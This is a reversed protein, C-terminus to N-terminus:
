TKIQFIFRQGVVPKKINFERIATENLIFNHEDAKNNVDFWRGETMELRFVRQYDEDASLQFVTPTFNHERGDWDASGSNSSTLNVISSSAMTVGAIATHSKLEQKISTFVANNTEASYSSFYRYPLSFAFLQERDYGLNKEQTYKLQRFITITTIILIASFTFQSVVLIKRM